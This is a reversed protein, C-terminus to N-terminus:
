ATPGAEGSIPPQQQAPIWQQAAPDWQWGDQIIPQNAEVQGEVDGTSGTQGAGGQEGGDPTAAASARKPLILGSGPVPDSGAGFLAPYALGAVAAGIFPAILFIPLQKLPDAGSFLAPGFSRAPNASGGDATLAFFVIAGYALGTVAPAASPHAAREDRAALVVFVFIATILIELVITAWWAYGGSGDGWYNAGLSDSFADFGDFGLAIVLLTVGAFVAGVFQAAVYPGVERWALRGSLASGVTLAPNFHGGSIRGFAYTLAVLTVGFTLAVNVGAGAGLFALTGCGLVVLIFTGILEATLKRLTTTDPPMTVDATGSDPATAETM